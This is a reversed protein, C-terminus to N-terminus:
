LKIGSVNLLLNITYGVSFSLLLVFLSLGVGVKVGREKVNVLFQAVCPLFLTLTVSAVLLQNGTLLGAKKLDYFGAAGYDRRLFGFLFSVASKDPLGLLSIPYELCRVLADFLGVLQGLWIFVSTFIFMPFIEKFYWYVRAWTKTLVNSIKPLRLPPIEMYFSPREGPMVMKSLFGVLLFVLIVIGLWISFVPVNGDFLALLVGLQASCPVALALLLTAIIRERKTPLTRTVMTAMTDCGLGLVMPIVARGTLGIVKFLRDILLSLRPLYGTDEIVSFALFFTTVIPLILAISYRVGLTIVGYEGVFLEQLVKWPLLQVALETIWPNIREEFITGELFDVLVGAGFEGVFKYIGFYLIFFLIPVGTWPSIMRLSLWNAYKSRNKESLSIAKHAIKSALRQRQLALEYSVPNHFIKESQEILDHILDFDKEREKVIKFAGHEKQLLLIALTRKSIPYDGHLLSEIGRIYGELPEEYRFTNISVKRHYQLIMEKLREIGEGTTSVTAVVPIGLSKSLLAIDYRIGIKEAEDVMNLVLIVPLGTEIIQLTLTLMRELNKADVVHLLLDPRGDLIIASTVREEETVPLLSYMGPTDIVEFREKGITGKGRFVEVTTGPYNSVTVYAGTLRQFLVSKGVNPNGVIAIKASAEARSDSFDQGPVVEGGIKKYTDSKIELNM